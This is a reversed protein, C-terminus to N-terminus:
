FACVVVRIAAHSIGEVCDLLQARDAGQALLMEALGAYNAITALPQNLEHAITSGLAGVVNVRAMHILEARLSELSLQASIEATASQGQIFVGIPEAIGNHIPEYIVNVTETTSGGGELDIEYGHNTLHVSAGTQFVNDLIALFGERQAEPFAAQALTGPTIARRSIAELAKNAFVIRHERGETALAFGPYNELMAFMKDRQAVILEVSLVSNTTDNVICWVGIVEALLERLPIFAFTFFRKDNSGDHWTKLEVDQSIFAEGHLARMLLPGIEPWIQKWLVKLSSGLADAWHDGALNRMPGNFLLTMEKGVVVFM